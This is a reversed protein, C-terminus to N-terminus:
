MEITMLDRSSTGNSISANFGAFSCPSGHVEETTDPCRTEGSPLLLPSRPLLFVRTSIYASQTTLKGLRAWKCKVLVAAETVTAPRLPICCQAAQKRSRREAGVPEEWVLAKRQVWERVSPQPRARWWGILGEANRLTESRASLVRGVM